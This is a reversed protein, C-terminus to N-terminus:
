IYKTILNTHYEKDSSILGKKKVMIKYILLVFIIYIIFFVVSNFISAFQSRLLTYQITSISLYFIDAIINKNKRWYDELKRLVFGIIFFQFFVGIGKFNLYQKKTRSMCTDM